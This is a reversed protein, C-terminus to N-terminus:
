LSRFRSSLIPEILSSSAETTSWEPKTEPSIPPKRRIYSRPRSDRSPSARWCICEGYVVLEKRDQRKLRAKLKRRDQRKHRAKLKRRDQRKIPKLQRRDQRKNLLPVPRVVGPRRSRPAFRNCRITEFFSHFRITRFCRFTAFAKWNASLASWCLCEGYGARSFKHFLLELQDLTQPCPNQLLVSDDASRLLFVFPFTSPRKHLLPV